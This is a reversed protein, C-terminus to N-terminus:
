VLNGKMFMGCFIEGAGDQSAASGILAMHKENKIKLGSSSFSARHPIM